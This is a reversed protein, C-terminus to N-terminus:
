LGKAWARVNFCPCAKTSVDNHGYIDDPTLNFRDMLTRMLAELTGLQAATFNFEPLGNKGRGGVLAVGISNKNHGKAHAGVQELPRGPEAMGDRRIVSHYGIDSWGNGDVHWSRITDAGIDM